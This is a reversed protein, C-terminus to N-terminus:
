QEWSTSWGLFPSTSGPAKLTRSANVSPDHSAMGPEEIPEFRGMLRGWQNVARAAALAAATIAWGAQAMCIKRLVTVPSVMVRSASGESVMSFMLGLDLVRFPYRGIVLAQDTRALLQFVM